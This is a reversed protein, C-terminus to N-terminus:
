KAGKEVISLNIWDGIKKDWSQPDFEEYGSGPFFTYEGFYLKGNIEYWDMRVFPIGSSLEESFRIMKNLNKPKKIIKNSTPYHRTFPLKNWDLDFFTVKLGDGFRETCTFIMKARGNFCMIKYDVLEGADCDEMYQEVIIRPKVNKYPWERYNYYFNRKLSKNIKKKVKKIDMKKKDKIVALGGSDHTCKIVFQDPLKTFDIDNFNDYIGLTPIIYEKGILKAVHKKAEYKDVLNTYYDKRDNLKLWQLKENFTKPNDLNLSYGMRVKFMKKILVEDSLFIMRSLLAKKIMSINKM